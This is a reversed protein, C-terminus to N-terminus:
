FHVSIIVDRLMRTPITGRSNTTDIVRAITMVILASSNSLVMEVEQLLHSVILLIKIKQQSQFTTKPKLAILHEVREKNQYDECQFQEEKVPLHVLIKVLWRSSAVKRKMSPLTEQDPLKLIHILAMQM